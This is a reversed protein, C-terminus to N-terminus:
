PEAFAYPGGRELASQYAPLDHIKELWGMTNPFNTLDGRAAATEIPFSMMIDAGSLRPGAFWPCAALKAEIFHFQRSLTPDLFKKDAGAAILMAFPRMWFPVMSPLMSFVLKMVAPPMASGEAFHMWYTYQLQDADGSPAGLRGAGYHGALYEVIAGTEAITLDGDVIVPSKGLPHVALLEPPALRTKPDRQYRRIEYPTGLEELLWLVRQSRSDELHHVVIMGRSEPARTHSCRRDYPEASRMALKWPGGGAV